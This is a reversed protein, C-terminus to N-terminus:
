CIQLLFFILHAPSSVGCGSVAKGSIWFGFALAPFSPLQKSQGTKVPNAGGHLWDQVKAPEPSWIVWKQEIPELLELAPGIEKEPEKTEVTTSVIAIYKGQAAVSHASSIM